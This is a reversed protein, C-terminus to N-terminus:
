PSALNGRGGDWRPGPPSRIPLAGGWAIVFRARAAADPLSCGDFPYKGLAAVSMRGELLYMFTDAVGVQARVEEVVAHYESLASSIMGRTRTDVLAAADTLSEMAKDYKEM